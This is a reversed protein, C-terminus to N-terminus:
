ASRDVTLEDAYREEYRENSAGFQIRFGDVPLPDAVDGNMFACHKATVVLRESILAGSCSALGDRHRVMVVADDSPAPDGAIIAARQAQPQPARTPLPDACGALAALVGLGGQMWVVFGARSSVQEM